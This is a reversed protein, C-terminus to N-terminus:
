YNYNVSKLLLDKPLGLIAKSVKYGAVFDSNTRIETISDELVDKNIIGIGGSKVKSCYKKCTFKGKNGEPININNIGVYDIKTEVYYNITHSEIFDPVDLKPSLICVNLM